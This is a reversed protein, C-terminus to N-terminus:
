VTDGQETRWEEHLTRFVEAVEQEKAVRRLVRVWRGASIWHDALLSIADEDWSCLFSLL